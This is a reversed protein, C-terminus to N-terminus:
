ELPVLLVRVNVFHVVLHKVLSSHLHVDFHGEIRSGNGSLIAANVQNSAAVFSSVLVQLLAVSVILDKRLEVLLGGHDIRVGVVRQAGHLSENIDDAREDVTLHIAETLDVVDLLVLPLLYVTESDCSRAHGEAGEFVVEDKCKTTSDVLLVYNVRNLAIVDRFVHPLLDGTSRSRKIFRLPDRSVHTKGVLNRVILDQYETALARESELDEVAAEYEVDLLHLDALFAFQYVRAREHVRWQYESAIEVGESVVNEDVLVADCFLFPIANWLLERSIAQEAQVIGKDNIYQGAERLM